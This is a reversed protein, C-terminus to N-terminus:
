RMKGWEIKRVIPTNIMTDSAAVPSTRYLFINKFIKYLEFSFM